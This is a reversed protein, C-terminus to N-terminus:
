HAQFDLDFKLKSKNLVPRFYVYCSQRILSVVNVIGYFLM